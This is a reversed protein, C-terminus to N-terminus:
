NFDEEKVLLKEIKTSVGFVSLNMRVVKIEVQGDPRSDDIVEGGLQM